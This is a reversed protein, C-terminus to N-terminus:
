QVARAAEARLVEAGDVQEVVDEVLDDLWDADDMEQALRIYDVSERTATDLLDVNDFDPLHRMLRLKVEEERDSVDVGSGDRCYRDFMERAVKGVVAGREADTSTVSM